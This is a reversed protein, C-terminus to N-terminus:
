VCSKKDKRVAIGYKKLCDDVDMALHRAAYSLALRLERKFPENNATRLLNNTHHILDNIEQIDDKMGATEGEEENSKTPETPGADEPPSSVSKVIVSLTTMKAEPIVPISRQIKSKRDNPPQSASKRKQPTFLSPNVTISDANEVSQTKGIIKLASVTPQATEPIANQAEFDQMKKNLLEFPDLDSANDDQGHTTISRLKEELEKSSVKGEGKKNTTFLSGEQETM